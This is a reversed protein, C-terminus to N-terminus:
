FFFGVWGSFLFVFSLGSGVTDRTLFKRGGVQGTGFEVRGVWGM